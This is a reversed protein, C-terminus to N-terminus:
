RSVFSFSMERRVKRKRESRIEREGEGKMEERGARISSDFETYMGKRASARCTIPIIRDSYILRKFCFSYFLLIFIFIFILIFLIFM